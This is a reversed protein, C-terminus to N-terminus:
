NQRNGALINRFTLNLREGVPRRTPAIRHQWYQQALGSMVLVDGHGLDIGKHTTRPARLRLQFRRTAGLSVSVIMPRSGLEPEDDAHWGIYDSGNRYRNVLVSNLPAGVLSELYVRIKSLVPTWPRPEHRIGSYQYRLGTDAHWASLRPCDVLRGFLRVQHQEWAVEDSLSSLSEDALVKPLAAPLCEVRGTPGDVIRMVEGQCIWAAQTNWRM